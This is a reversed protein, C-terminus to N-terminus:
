SFVSREGVPRGRYSFTRFVNQIRESFTTFVNHIRQVL